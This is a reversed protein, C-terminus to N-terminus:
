MPEDDVRPPYLRRYIGSGPTRTGVCRATALCHCQATLVAGLPLYVSAIAGAYPGSAREDRTREGAGGAGRAKDTPSPSGDCVTAARTRRWGRTESGESGEDSPGPTSVVRLKDTDM